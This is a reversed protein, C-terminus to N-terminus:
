VTLCKAQWASNSTATLCFALKATPKKLVIGEDEPSRKQSLTRFMAAFGDTHNCALWTHPDIVRYGGSIHAVADPFLRALLAQREAFTTGTLHESDAVLVDHIYNINRLGPVKSHLLEATFVYWGGSLDRFALGTAADPAWAKHETKHRTMAIVKRDPTIAMVNATGNKKTQSWYGSKEWQPLAEPPINVSPRPPYLYSFQEYKM